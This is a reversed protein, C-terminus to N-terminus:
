PVETQARELMKQYLADAEAVRGRIMEKQKPWEELLLDHTQFEELDEDPILPGNLIDNLTERQHRILEPVAALKWFPKDDVVIYVPASHAITTNRPDNRAGYARVAIWM